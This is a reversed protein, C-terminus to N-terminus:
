RTAALFGTSSEVEVQRGHEAAVEGLGTTVVTWGHGALWGPLDSIGGRWLSAARSVGAEAAQAALQQASRGQECFLRSGPASLRGVTDLLAAAEAPSLYVLLGEVLWATPQERDFGARTVATAWDGTLDAAVPLRVCGAVAGAAALVRDKFALVEPLDVEFVRADTPWALRFARTDLGAALVAVQRIGARAAAVLRDDYWRTRMVVHLTIRAGVARGRGSHGTDGAYVGPMADVFAQAYPDDFLRDPRASEAARIRAVGFATQSVPTLEAM